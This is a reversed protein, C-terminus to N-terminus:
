AEIYRKVTEILQSSYSYIDELKDVPYKTGKKEEDFLELFKKKTNNFHLKCIPKRKNDDFLITFYSQTDRQVIRDVNVTSALIARVIYFGQMEEVTTVINSEEIASDEQESTDEKESETSKIAVNLKESIIDNILNNFARKILDSFQDTIKQTFMGEYVKKALVKVLDASPQAFEAKICEKLGSMYKLENAATLINEKDFYSKHFQKLAEIQTDKIAEINFELFPKDDMINKQSLDSYFRYNLGNTLIGFRATQAASFYGKLQGVHLDLDECWHKCEIIITPEEKIIIAYDVKDGKKKTLDCDLEPVVEMPNFVDYGLNAIFPLILANKTAEETKCTEKLKSVRDSLGLMTDKFDM